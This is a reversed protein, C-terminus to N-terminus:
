DLPQDRPEALMLPGGDPSMPLHAPDLRMGELDLTPFARYVDDAPMDALLVRGSLSCVTYRPGDPSSYALTYYDMGELFGLSKWGKPHVRSVLMREVQERQKATLAPVSAAQDPEKAPSLQPDVVSAVLVFVGVGACVVCLRKLLRAGRGNLVAPDGGVNGRMMTPEASNM